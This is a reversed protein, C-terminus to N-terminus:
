EPKTPEYFFLFFGCALNQGLGNQVLVNLGNVSSTVKGESEQGYVLTYIKKPIKLDDGTGIRFIKRVYLESNRCSWLFMLLCVSAALAGVWPEANHAHNVIKM